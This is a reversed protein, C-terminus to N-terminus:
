SVTKWRRGRTKKVPAAVAREARIRALLQEASEDAPDQDALKGEFAWQMVGQRLRSSRRVAATVEARAKDGISLLDDVMSSIRIQEAYPPLPVPMQRLDAGSIGAQGATTRTRREVLKRSEGANAAAELFAPDVEASLRVKILKDPHVTAEGLWRVRACVGVLSPTGNYRTFLLDDTTLLDDAYQEPQGPLYRVDSYDIALPRVASIRLIRVGAIERPAKSQGNRVLWSLQDLTAWCWGEPLAPLRTTDPLSPEKYKARWRGNKPTKDSAKLKALESEEWRRRREYLIRTLLVEAPEYTRGERRALDAETSVLRGAVAAKLVSTGYSKLKVRVRNLSAIAADIRSVHSEIADIIRRQEAM